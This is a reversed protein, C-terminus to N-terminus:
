AKATSVCSVEDGDDNRENVNLVYSSLDIVSEIVSGEEGEWLYRHSCSCHKWRVLGNRLDSSNGITGFGISYKDEVNVIMYTADSGKCLRELVARYTWLMKLTLLGFETIWIRFKLTSSHLFFEAGTSLKTFFSSTWVWTGLEAHAAGRGVCVWTTVCTVGSVVSSTVLVVLRAGAGRGTLVASGIVNSSRATASWVGAKSPWATASWVGAKPPWATTSEGRKATRGKDWRAHSYHTTPALLREDLQTQLDHHIDSGNYRTVSARPGRLLWAGHGWHLSEEVESGYAECLLRLRRAEPSALIRDWSLWVLTWRFSDMRLFLLCVILLAWM